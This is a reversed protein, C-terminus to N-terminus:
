KLVLNSHYTTAVFGTKPNIYIDHSTAGFFKMYYNKLREINSIWIIIHDRKM